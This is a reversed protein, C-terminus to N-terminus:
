RNMIKGYLRKMLLKMESIAAPFGAKNLVVSLGPFVKSEAIEDGKFSLIKVIINNAFLYIYIEASSTNVIWYENIGSEMYLDLKKVPDRSRTSDSLVEVVFPSPSSSIQISREV